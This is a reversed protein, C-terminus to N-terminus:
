GLDSDLASHEREKDMFYNHLVSYLKREVATDICRPYKQVQQHRKDQCITKVQAVTATSLDKDCLELIARGESAPSKFRGPVRM